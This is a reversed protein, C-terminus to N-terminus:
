DGRWMRRANDEVEALANGRAIREYMQRRLDAEPSTVNEASERAVMEVPQVPTFELKRKQISPM